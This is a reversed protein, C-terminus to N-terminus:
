RTRRYNYKLAKGLDLDSAHLDKGLKLLEENYAQYPKLTSGTYSDVRGEDYEVFAENMEKDM